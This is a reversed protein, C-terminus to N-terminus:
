PERSTNKMYERNTILCYGAISINPNTKNEDDKVFIVKHGELPNKEEPVNEYVSNNKKVKAIVNLGGFAVGAAGATIGIIKTLKKKDM